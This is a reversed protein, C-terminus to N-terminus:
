PRGGREEGRSRLSIRTIHRLICRFGMLNRRVSAGMTPDVATPGTSALSSVHRVLDALV